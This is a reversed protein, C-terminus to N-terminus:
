EGLHDLLPALVLSANDKTLKLDKNLKNYIDLDIQKLWEYHQNHNISIDVPKIKYVDISKFFPENKKLWDFTEDKTGKGNNIRYLREFCVGYGIDNQKNEDDGDFQQTCLIFQRNGNDEKNLELVAQGTTGSGAGFDMIIQHDKKPCLNILYKILKTGKPYTFLREGEENIGLISDLIKQNEDTSGVLSFPLITKSILGGVENLYKKLGPRGNPDSPFYLRGDKQLEDMKEKKYRWGNPAIEKYEIGNNFISYGQLGIATLCSIRYKGRGDNDDYKYLSDSKETRDLREFHDLYNKNKAYCLIYDHDVSVFKNNNKISYYKQWVFNCIFNEEGFIGDMMVKFYAQMNDDLSVFIVGDDNLLEHAIQMRQKMLNLWADKSYKDKYGLDSGGTNYPPDIYIVDVKNRYIILLNQLVQLNEGIILVHNPPTKGNPILSSVGQTQIQHNSDKELVPIATADKVHPAEDFKFGFGVRQDFIKTLADLEDFSTAKKLAISIVKFQDDNIGNISKFYDIKKNIEEQLTEM